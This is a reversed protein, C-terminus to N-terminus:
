TACASRNGTEHRTSEICSHSSAFSHVYIGLPNALLAEATRPPEFVIEMIGTFGEAAIQLGHEYTSEVWRIAFTRDSARVISTVEVSVTQKGIKTFVDAARVYSNLEEAGRDTLHAYANQWNSRVVIPDSSLSRVHEIFRALVYAIQADSARTPENAAVTVREDAPAGIDVQYVVADARTAAIGLTLGLLASM